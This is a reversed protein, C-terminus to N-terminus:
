PAEHMAHFKAAHPVRDKDCMLVLDDAPYGPGSVAAKLAKLFREASEIAPVVQDRSDGRLVGAQAVQHLLEMADRTSAIDEQAMEVERAKAAAQAEAVTTM